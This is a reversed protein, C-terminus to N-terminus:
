QAVDHERHAVDLPGRPEPRLDHSELHGIAVLAAHDKEPVATVMMRDREHRGLRGVFRGTLPLGAEVVAGELDARDGLQELNAIKETGLVHRDDVLPTTARSPIGSDLELIGVPEVDLDVGRHILDARVALAPRRLLPAPGLAELLGHRMRKLSHGILSARSPQCGDPGARTDANVPRRGAPAGRQAAESSLLTTMGVPRRIRAMTSPIVRVARPPVVAIAGTSACSAACIAPVAATDPETSAALGNVAACTCKMFTSFFTRNM